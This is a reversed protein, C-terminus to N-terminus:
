GSSSSVEQNPSGVLMLEGGNFFVYHNKFVLNPINSKSYMILMDNTLNMFLNYDSGWFEHFNKTMDITNTIPKMLGLVEHLPKFRLEKHAGMRLVWQLHMVERNFDMYALSFDEYTKCRSYMKDAAETISHILDGEKKSKLDFEPSYGIYLKNHHKYVIHVTCSKVKINPQFSM